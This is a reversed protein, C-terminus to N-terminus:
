GLWGKAADDLLVIEPYLTPRYSAAKACRTDSKADSLQNTNAAFIPCNYFRLQNPGLAWAM